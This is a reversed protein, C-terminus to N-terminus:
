LRSLATRTRQELAKRYDFEHSYDLADRYAEEALETDGREEHVEGMHFRSWPAWGAGADGPNSVAFAFHRLANDGEGLAQFARGSRFAAEARQTAPAEDRGLVPQMAEISARYQGAELLNDGRLLQQESLSLPSALRKEAERVAAKDSDYDRDASVRRYLALARERDGEMEHALGARLYSQALLARGRHRRAFREFHEAADQFKNQRFLAEGLYFDIYPIETVQESAQQDAAHRLLREAEDVQRDELLFYARIYATMPSNPYASYLASVHRAAGAQGENLLADVVALLFAAEERSYASQRLAIELEEMGQPVTGGFGLVRLIWRYPSPVAGVAVHSLGMGKYSEWFDPYRQLNTRYGNYASRLALGAPAYREQKALVLARQFALEAGLHTKWASEPLADLHEELSDSVAFFRSYYPEREAMLARWLSLVTLHYDGAPSQPELRALRQFSAEASDLRFAIMQSRAENLLATGAATELLMPGYAPVRSEFSVISSTDAEEAQSQETVPQAATGAAWVLLAVAM